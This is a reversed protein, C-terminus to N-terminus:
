THGLKGGVGRRLGSSIASLTGRDATLTAETLACLQPATRIVRTLSIEMGQLILTPGLWVFFHWFQHSHFLFDFRGPAWREPIKGFYFVGGFFACCTGGLSMLAHTRIEASDVLWHGQVYVLYVIPFHCLVFLSALPWM